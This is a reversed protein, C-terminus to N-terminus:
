EYFIFNEVLNSSRPTLIILYLHEIWCPSFIVTSWLLTSKISQETKQPGGPICHTMSHRDIIGCAHRDTQRYHCCLDLARCTRRNDNICLHMKKRLVPSTCDIILRQVNNQNITLTLLDSWHLIVHIVECRMCMEHTQTISVEVNVPEFLTVIFHCM